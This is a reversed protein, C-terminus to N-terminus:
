ASRSGAAELDFRPNIRVYLGPRPLFPGSQSSWHPWALGILRFHGRFYGYLRPTWPIQAATGSTLWVYEARKLDAQWLEVVPRLVAATADRSQGSTMAFLTGFSDVMPPCDRVDSYFRDAAVTYAADNTLVCAGAPILRDADAAPIGRLRSEARFQLVGVTVLILGLVAATRTVTRAAPRAARRASLHGAPLAVALAIFPGAFAGYHSYYLRPVLFM